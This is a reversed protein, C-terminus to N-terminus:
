ESERTNKFEHKQREEDEWEQREKRLDEETWTVFSHQGFENIVM